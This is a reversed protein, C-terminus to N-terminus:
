LGARSTMGHLASPGSYAGAADERKRALHERERKLLALNRANSKFGFDFIDGILPISGLVFDAAVNGAMRALTRKRAGRKAGELIFLLSLMAGIGDGVFPIVGLLADAGFRLPLGPLTFRTDLWSALRDLQADNLLLKREQVPM